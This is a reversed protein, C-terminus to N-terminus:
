SKIFSNVAAPTAIMMTEESSGSTMPILSRMITIRSPEIAPTSSRLSAVCSFIIVNAVPPCYNMDVFTLFRNRLSPGSKPRTSSNTMKVTRLGVNRLGDLRDFRSRCTETLASIEKPMVKTMRVPPISRETPESNASEVANIAPMILLPMSGTMLMASQQRIPIASPAALPSMMVYPLTAGNIAVKAVIVIKRPAVSTYLLPRGILPKVDSGNKMANPTPSTKPTGTGAIVVSSM